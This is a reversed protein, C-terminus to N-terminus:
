GRLPPARSSEAGERVAVRNRGEAKARYLAADAAALLARATTGHEPCAAVGLSVTIPGLLGQPGPVVLRQVGDRVQEAREVTAELSADPLILVFEEGGYRCAIDEERIGAGLFSGLASLLLDGAEHGHADNFGKFLDLDLMVIGLSRGSRGARRVERELSEEMYRRNFLGTLPDRIAQARLTDQLRLNALTLAVHGAMGVALRQRSHWADSRTSPELGPDGQVHFVGLPHGGAMMPVCVYAIERPADLHGCRLGSATTEVAHPRGRRLAWCQDSGFARDGVDPDGWVAVAEVIGSGEGLLGLMGSSAPFLREAFQTVVRCAEETSRCSQLLDGMESLLTAQRTRDELDNVWRTLERNAEELAAEAAKQETVDRGITSIGIVRGGADEIPWMSLSAQIRSGGRTVLVTEHHRIHEGSRVRALWRSFADGLEPPVLRSIPEGLVESADYGCIREAGHNWSVITGDPTMGVIADDSSEVISALRSMSEQLRQRHTLAAALLLGTVAVVGVFAQLLVLGETVTAATFPGHGRMTGWVALAAAVFTAATTGRLGFRLAGWIVFPFVTFALPYPSRGVGLGIGFVVYASAALPLILLGAEARRRGPVPVPARTWFALLLPTVVLAGMADGLWWSGWLAGYAPWLSPDELSLSGVGLTAGVAPAVLAALGIFALVDEPRDFSNRFGAFRRLLFVGLLAELTNGVAIGAATATGVETLANALFAGVTIAPWLGYGLLLLGALSVGTPPWVLSVNPHVTALSLGLEAALFYATVLGAFRVAYSQVRGLSLGARAKSGSVRAVATHPPWSGVM